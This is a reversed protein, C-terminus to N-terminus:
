REVFASDITGSVVTQFSSWTCGKRASDVVCGPLTIPAILPPTSLTLPTARRMQDLSQAIYYLRISYDLSPADQWLEFLLAGGPPTDNPQYGQLAWSLNLMGAIHTINTDHGVLILARDRPKGLSGAVPRDSAAQELSKLIHNLLNSGQVRALYPTRRFLDAYATHISMIERLKGEDLRGWGLSKGTMGNAYELL